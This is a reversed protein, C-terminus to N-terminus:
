FQIEIKPHSKYLKLNDIVLGKVDCVGNPYLDYYQETLKTSLEGWVLTARWSMNINCM